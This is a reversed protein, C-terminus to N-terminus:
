AGDRPFTTSQVSAVSDRQAADRPSTTSDVSAASDRHAGDRPSTTSDVSAVSDYNAADRPSTTSEVSVLSEHHAGYGTLVEDVGVRAYGPPVPNGHITAEPPNPLAYGDAVNISINNMKYHLECSTSEQIDNVPNHALLAHAAPVGTSGVSSKPVTRLTSHLAPYPQEYEQRQSACQQSLTDIQEQQRM